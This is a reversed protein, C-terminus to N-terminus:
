SVPGLQNFETATTSSAQKLPLPCAIPQFTLPRHCCLSLIFYFKVFIIDLDRNNHVIIFYCKM